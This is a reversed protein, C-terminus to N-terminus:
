VVAHQPEWFPLDYRIHNADLVAIEGVGIFLRDAHLNGIWIMGDGFPQTRPFHDVFGVIHILSPGTAM